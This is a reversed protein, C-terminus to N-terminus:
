KSFLGNEAQGIKLRMMQRTSLSFWLNEQDFQGCRFLAVNKSQSCHWFLGDLQGDTM